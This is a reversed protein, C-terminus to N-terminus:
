KVIDKLVLEFERGIADTSFFRKYIKEGNGAIKKRLDVNDVLKVIATAIEEPNGPSCLISNNENLYERIAPSDVTILPKEMALVQFIKNPIHRKAKDTVGFIGLGISSDGIIESLKSPSVPDIFKINLLKKKEVMNLIKEYEQGRGVFIFEIDRRERIIDAAEVIHEVGHLPIFNGFYLVKFVNDNNKSIGKISFTNEDTGINIRKMKKYPVKFESHYFKMVENTDLILYDCLYSSIYDIYKEISAKVSNKQYLKRDFVSTDYRSYLPAFVVPIKKIKGILYAFPVNTHSFGGVIIVDSDKSEKFFRFLLKFQKTFFNSNSDFCESVTNGRKELANKWSVNRNYNLPDSGFFCIKM